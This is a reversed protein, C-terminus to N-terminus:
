DDFDIKFGPLEFLHIGGEFEVDCGERSHKAKLLLIDFLISIRMLEDFVNDLLVWLLSGVKGVESAHWEEDKTIGIENSLEVKVWSFVLLEVEILM